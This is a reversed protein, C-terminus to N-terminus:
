LIGGRVGGEGCVGGFCSSFPSFFDSQSFVLCAKLVPKGKIDIKNRERERERKKKPPPPPHPTLTPPPPSPMLLCFFSIFCCCGQEQQLEQQQAQQKNHRVDRPSLLGGKPFLSDQVSRGAWSAILNILSVKFFFFVGRNWPSMAVCAGHRTVIICASFERFPGRCRNQFFCLPRFSAGDFYLWVRIFQGGIQSPLSTPMPPPPPSPNPPPPLNQCKTAFLNLRSIGCWLLDISCRRRGHWRPRLRSVSRAGPGGGWGDHFIAGTCDRSAKRM